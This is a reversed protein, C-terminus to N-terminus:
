NSHELCKEGNQYTSRFGPTYLIEKLDEVLLCLIVGYHRVEDKRILEEVEEIRKKIEFLKDM